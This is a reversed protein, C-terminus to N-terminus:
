VNWFRGENTTTNVANNVRDSAENIGSLLQNGILDGWGGALGTFIRIPKPPEKPPDNRAAHSLNWFCNNSPYPQWLQNPTPDTVDPPSLFYITSILLRDEGDDQFQGNLRDYISPAKVAPMAPGVLLRARAGVRDLQSTDYSVSYDVVEGSTGSADVVTATGRYTARAVSIWVDCAALLRPPLAGEDRQTTDMEVMGLANISTGSVPKRVGLPVFFPPIGDGEGPVSRFSLPIKPGTILDGHGPVTPDQGNVFGPRIQVTWRGDIWRVIPFWPYHWGAEPSINLIQGRITRVSTTYAGPLLMCREAPAVIKENWDRARLSPTRDVAGKLFIGLSTIFQQM